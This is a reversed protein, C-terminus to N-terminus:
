LCMRRKFRERAALLEPLKGVFKPEKFSTDNKSRKRRARVFAKCKGRQSAIYEASPTDQALLSRDSDGPRGAKVHLNFEYASNARLESSPARDRGM